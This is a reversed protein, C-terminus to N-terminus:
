QEIYQKGFGHTITLFEWSCCSLIFTRQKGLYYIILFILNYLPIHCLNGGMRTRQGRTIMHRECIIM